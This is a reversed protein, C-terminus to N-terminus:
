EETKNIHVVNKDEAPNKGRMNVVESLNKEETPLMPQCDPQGLMFKSYGLNLKKSM